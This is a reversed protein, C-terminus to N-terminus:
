LEGAAMQDAMDNMMLTRDKNDTVTKIRAEYDARNAFKYPTRPAQGPITPRQGPNPSGKSNDVTAFGYAAKTWASKLHEEFSIPLGRSDIADSEGDDGVVVLKGDRARLKSLDLHASFFANERDEASVGTAPVDFIAGAKKLLPVGERRALIEVQERQTKQQFTEFEQKLKGNEEEWTKAWQQRLSKVAPIKLLEAETMEEPKKGSTEVAQSEKWELFANDLDAGQLDKPVEFGAVRMVKQRAVEKQRLFAKHQLDNVSKQQLQIIEGVKDALAKGELQKDGDQLAATFEAPDIKYATRIAELILEDM